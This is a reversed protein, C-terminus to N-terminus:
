DEEGGFSLIYNVIETASEKVYPARGLHYIFEADVWLAAFKFEEGDVTVSVNFCPLHDDRFSGYMKSATITKGAKIHNILRLSTNPPLEEFDVLSLFDPHNNDYDM